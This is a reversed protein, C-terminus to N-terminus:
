AMAVDDNTVDSAVNKEGNIDDRSVNDEGNVDRQVEDRVDDESIDVSEKRCQNRLHGEVLALM